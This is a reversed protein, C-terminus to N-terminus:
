RVLIFNGKLSQNGQAVKCCRPIWSHKCVWIMEIGISPQVFVLSIVWIGRHGETHSFAAAYTATNSLQLEVKSKGPHTVAIKTKKKTKETHKKKKWLIFLCFFGLLMRLSYVVGNVGLINPFQLLSLM